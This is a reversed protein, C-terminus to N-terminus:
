NLFLGRLLQEQKAALLLFKRKNKELEKADGQAKQALDNKWLDYRKLEYEIVQM